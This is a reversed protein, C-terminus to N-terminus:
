LGGVDLKEWGQWHHRELPGEGGALTEGPVRVESRQRRGKLAWGSPDVSATEM